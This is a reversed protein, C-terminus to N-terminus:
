LLHQPGFDPIVCSLSELVKSFRVEILLRELLSLHGMMSNLAESTLGAGDLSDSVSATDAGVEVVTGFTFSLIVVLMSEELDPIWM